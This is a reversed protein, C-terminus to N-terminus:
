KLELGFLLAEMLAQHCTIAKCSHQGLVEMLLPEMQFHRAMKEEGFGFDLEPQFWRAPDVRARHPHLLFHLGVRALFIIPAVTQCLLGARIVALSSSIQLALRLRLLWEHARNMRLRLRQGLPIRLIM